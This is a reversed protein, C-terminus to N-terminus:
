ERKERKEERKRETEAEKKEFGGLKRGDISVAGIKGIEVM